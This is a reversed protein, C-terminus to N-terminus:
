QATLFRRVSSRLGSPMDISQGPMQIGGTGSLIMHTANGVLIGSAVDFWLSDVVIGSVEQWWAVRNTEDEWGGQRLRMEGEAVALVVTRGAFDREGSVRYNRVAQYFTEGFDQSHASVVSDTWRADTTMASAELPIRPLVDVRASPVDEVPVGDVAWVRGSEDIRYNTESSFGDGSITVALALGPQAEAFGHTESSVTSIPEGLTDQGQVFWMM